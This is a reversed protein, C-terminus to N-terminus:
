SREKKASAASPYVKEIEGLLVDPSPLMGPPLGFFDVRAGPEVSLKVDEVMQGTNLEMVQLHRVKKSTERIFAEPFPYLTIPRILGVKLGEERAMDVSSKLVRAMSGFAVVVLEADELRLAEYRVDERMKLYKRYLKWNHETLEGDDLYLSKLFRGPRGRAGTLIWSRDFAGTAQYPRPDLSEKMQGLMADGLLLVPNRYKDAMDFALMTLDYCEQVSDPALVFVRYDGHGGGRTAQFYDGQSPSIGGLGPGSRSMNVVVGPIESGAMYSLGEQKLSIGPSSSSTMARAGTASAGLVMNISAIESEAQIFTGRGDSLHAAMYEPIENQPTIPYGFYFRCGAEIAGMAVAENGKVLARKQKESM